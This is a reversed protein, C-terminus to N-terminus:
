AYGASRTLKSYRRTSYLSHLNKLILNKTLNLRIASFYPSLFPKLAQYLLILAESVFLVIGKSHCVAETLVM